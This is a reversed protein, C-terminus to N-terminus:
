ADVTASQTAALREAVTRLLVHPIVTGDPVILVGTVDDESDSSLVVLRYAKEGVVLLTPDDAGDVIATQADTSEAILARVRERVTRALAAPDDLEPGMRAVCVFEDGQRAFLYGQQVETFECLQKLSWEASGSLTHDGGHRLLHVITMMRPPRADSDAGDVTAAKTVLELVRSLKEIRSVLAPDRTQRFWHDVRGLHHRLASEDARLVALEALAEHLAGMTLPNAGAEHRACLEMLRREAADTAGLAAEARSLEIELSLNLACFNLDEPTLRELAARCTDRAKVHEGLANYAMARLGEGRCWGVLEMPLEDKGLLGLAENPTGRLVYYAALARYYAFRLSPMDATMRKLQEVCDKLGATDRTRVFVTVLGSFTWTEVQWATGRQIAHVEVRERYKKFLELNGRNAYYMIRVQDASMDYLKLNLSELREACALAQSDDRWCEAVGRAYLAGALYLAYVNEPLDKVANPRDLRELMEIWRARAAGVHDEVTGVLNLCFQHMFSAVHDPGLATMPALVRAYKRGLKPDVCITAVGTLAAVCNFLMMMADRFKPVRANKSKMAFTAAATALAILLGLKRGLFRSLRRARKLGVVTELADVAREGYRVALRRDAYYGALALPSLISVLEHLPRQKREFHELAVELTPAAAGLDALDVLGYHRGAIAAAASGGEDDGGLLLHVGAKLRDLESLSPSALLWGGLRLHARKRRAEDLEDRLATRFSERSFRYGDASTVLVGERVLAELGDFLLHGEIEALEVCMELPLPGERVALMQGLERAHKALRAFRATEAQFRNAPLKEGEIAQPLVWAGGSLAITGNRTLHEALDMAHSPNGETRQHLLDVLRALHPVDGFVSRFLETTEGPTFPELAVRTSAQRLAQV